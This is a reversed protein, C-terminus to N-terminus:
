LTSKWSQQTIGRQSKREELYRPRPTIRVHHPLQPRPGEILHIITELGSQSGEDNHTRLISCVTIMMM